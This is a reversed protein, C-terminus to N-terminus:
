WDKGHDCDQRQVSAVYGRRFVTPVQGDAPGNPEVVAQDGTKCGAVPQDDLDVVRAGFGLVIRFVRDLIVEIQREIEALELLSNDAAKESRRAAIVRLVPM